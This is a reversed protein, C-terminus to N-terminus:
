EARAKLADMLMDQTVARGELVPLCDEDRTNEAVIHYIRVPKKQGQRLIRANAQQYAELNYTMGYWVIVSGGEQLNIGFGASEPHALLVPIEKRNWAAVDDPGELLRPEPLRQKRFYERIREVDHRYAYFVLIPNGNAAEVLDALEELKADHVATWSAKDDSYVAGNCIQQLKGALVGRGSASVTEDELALVLDRELTRYKMMAAPPLRVKRVISSSPPLKLYDAATMSMCLDSLRASIEDDAGDVPIWEYVTFGKHAGPRFWRDRYATVTTGLREGRDLLYVQAWLNILGKPTPTGTLGIVRKILPRVKRLAKFRKSEHNRFSSLEDIVVTDFPWRRGFREVLWAVNERNIITIDAEQDLAEVRRRVSGLALAFTFRALHDWKEAEQRWTSEAVRLPAIVLVRRAVFQNFMLDDLATLTILTKGLGMDLFLGSADRELVFDVAQKQYEHLRCEM